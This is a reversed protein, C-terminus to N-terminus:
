PLVRRTTGRWRPDRLLVLNFARSGADHVEVEAGDAAEQALDLLGARTYVTYNEGGALAGFRSIARNFLHYASHARPRPPSGFTYPLLAAEPHLVAVAGGPRLGARAARLTARAIDRPLYLSRKFLIFDFGDAEAALRPLEEIRARARVVRPEAPVQALMRQSVDIAWVRAAGRALLKRTVIGPGCGADAVVAGRLEGLAAFLRDDLAHALPGYTRRYVRASIEWAWDGM